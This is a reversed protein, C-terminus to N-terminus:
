ATLWDTSLTIKTAFWKVEYNVDSLGVAAIMNPDQRAFCRPCYLGTGSVQVHLHLRPRRHESTGVCLAM